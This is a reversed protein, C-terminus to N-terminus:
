VLFLPKYSPRFLKALGSLPRRGGSLGEGFIERSALEEFNAGGFNTVWFFVEGVFVARSSALRHSKKPQGKEGRTIPIWPGWLGGHSGRKPPDLPGKSEWSM